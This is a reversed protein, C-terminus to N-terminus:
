NQGNQLLKYGTVLLSEDGNGFEEWYLRLLETHSRSLDYRGTAVKITVSSLPAPKVICFGDVTSDEVSDVIQFTPFHDNM